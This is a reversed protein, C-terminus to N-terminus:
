AKGALRKLDAKAMDGVNPDNKAREYAARAEDLRGLKELLNGRRWHAADLSVDEPIDGAAIFAEMHALGAELQEGRLAAWRGFQYRAMADEPEAALRETWVALAEDWREARQLMGSLAMRARYNAPDLAIAERFLAEAGPNDKDLQALFGNALKGMSANLGAIQAAEANAKDRGGGMFGPANLYYQMLDLRAEVLRPDLKVATEWADRTRGAWRPKGLMSAAMAQRGYARGAWMWALADDPRQETATESAEIAADLDNARLASRIEAVEPALPSAVVSLGPSLLLALLLASRTRM